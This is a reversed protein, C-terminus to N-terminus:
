VEATERKRNLVTRTFVATGWSLDHGIADAEIEVSTGANTGDSWDRIRLIGTVVIRNGKEVSAAVNIALEEFCTITFWNVDGDVYEGTARDLRRNTAALRFSTIPLGDGTVLHRPTTAVLGTTTTNEAM